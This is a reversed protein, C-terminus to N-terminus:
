LLFKLGVRYENEPSIEQAWRVQLLIPLAVPFEALSIECRIPNSIKLPKTTILCLGGDSLNEVRAQISETRNGNHHSGLM